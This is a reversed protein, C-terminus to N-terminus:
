FLINFILAKQLAKQLKYQWRPLDTVLQVLLHGIIITWHCLKILSLFYKQELIM